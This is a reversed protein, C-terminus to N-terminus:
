YGMDKRLRDGIRALEAERHAKRRFFRDVSVQPNYQWSAAFLLLVLFGATPTTRFLAIIWIAVLALFGWVLLRILM